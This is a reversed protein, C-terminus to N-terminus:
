ADMTELEKELAQRKDICEGAEKSWSLKIWVDRSESPSTGDFAKTVIKDLEDQLVAIEVVLEERTKKVPEMDMECDTM